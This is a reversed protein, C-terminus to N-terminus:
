KQQSQPKPKSKSEPKPDLRPRTINPGTGIGTLTRVAWHLWSETELQMKLEDARREVDNVQIEFQAVGDEVDQVRSVLANIEYELKAAQVGVEGLAETIRARQEAVAEQSNEKARRYADTRQEYIEQLDDQQQAYLDDIDEIEKIKADVWPEIGQKVDLINVYLSRALETLYAHKESATMNDAEEDQDLEAIEEWRLIAEEADGFSLRRAWRAENPARRDPPRSVGISHRRYLRSLVTSFQQEVEMFPGQLDGEAVVSDAVSSEVAATVENRIDIARLIRKDDGNIPKLAEGNMHVSSRPEKTLIDETGPGLLAVSAPASEIEKEKKIVNLYEEPKNKWTFARGVQGPGPSPSVLLGASSDSLVSSRPGSITTESSEDKSPRSNHGRLGGGSYVADKIRGLGSRADRAVSKFGRRLADKDGPSDVVSIASGSAPTTSYVGSNEQRRTDGDDELPLSHVRKAQSSLDDKGFLVNNMDPMPREHNDPNSRKPKGHWLWKAREGSALSIFRDLDLGEIDGIGGKDRGGVMGLVIEGRKGGIETMTSKVAKQVGWGEGAAAKATAAHLKHMTQRDLRRNRELKQYKQFHSIGKETAEIDFVDKSVPAGYYSLRNRAGILLGLLAAVTTPGLIGDAPEINYYEAGFETWWNGIATETVDCLLGDIYEQGLKGFLFLAVQCMKVLELVADPFPIKNTTKYLQYFKTQAAPAPDSLTMGSRGSCGLRKLDENVIFERRHTKIDGDPVLIVTLASPFSSLNTVMLEGLNTDKPRAHYQQIAKFYTRLRQSWAKQDAPVGLVGVVVSHKEDGTYTVIVLTPSQRSCAWQEVLYLEYGKLEQKREVVTVCPDEELYRFAVPDPIIVRRRSAAPSPTHAPTTQRSDLSAISGDLQGPALSKQSSAKMLASEEDRHVRPESSSVLPRLSM